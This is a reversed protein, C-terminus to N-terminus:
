FPTEFDAFKQHGKDRDSIVYPAVTQPWSFGFSDYRIGVDLNPCYEHDTKYILCSNIELSLFGHAIGVPLFLVQPKQPSLEFAITKGFTTSQKRLDLCVDLVKGQICYILKQHAAPPLQFHMGRIVGRTSRSLFEEKPEFKIGAEGFLSRHFTKLFDGREDKYQVPTHLFIGSISQEVLNVKINEFLFCM